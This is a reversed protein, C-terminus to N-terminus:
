RGVGLAYMVAAVLAVYLALSVAVGVRQGVTWGPPTFDECDCGVAREVNAVVRWGALAGCHRSTSFHTHSEEDHGCGACWVDPAVGRDYRDLRSLDPIM